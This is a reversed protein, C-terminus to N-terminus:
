EGPQKRSPAPATVAAPVEIFGVGRAADVHIPDLIEVVGDAATYEVGAVNISTQGDPCKLKM